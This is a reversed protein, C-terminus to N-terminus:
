LAIESMPRKHQLEKIIEERHEDLRPPSLALSAKAGDFSVPNGFTKTETGGPLAQDEVWDMAVVQPDSLAESYTNIPACPVGAARLRELAAERTHAELFGEVEQKLTEQHAARSATSSYRADELLEPKGFASCLAVFLKNNGAAIAIDADACAFVEYPANRPHAAGMPKPNEGSGFLHSTQLAAIALSSGLMSVDIHTGHGTDRAGHLASAIAFAAYLGTTMDSVPVGCKAPPRGPEGTVSMLGSMAQITLDFGAEQSRPGQQGYASISCYVLEPNESRISDYDLGMRKMVGPRNNELVVDAHIMLARAIELETTDKLNLAISRKNRNVSAFNESFGETFPPWSRMSDGEVPREVKVVDAGMDSLLM